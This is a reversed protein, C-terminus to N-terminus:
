SAGTGAIVLRDTEFRLSPFPEIPGALLNGVQASFEAGGLVRLHDGTAGRGLCRVADVLRAAGDLLRFPREGVGRAFKGCARVSWM